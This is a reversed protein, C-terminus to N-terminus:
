RKEWTITVRAAPEDLLLRVFPIADPSNQDGEIQVRAPTVRMGAQYHLSLVVRGRYPAVDGLVIRQPDARLWQASGALAFSPRRRVRFLWGTEGRDRLEEILEAAPWDRFRAVTAPSWAVVWGVNCRDCYDQLRADGGAPWRSV